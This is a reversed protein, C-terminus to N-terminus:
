IVPKRPPLNPTIKPAAKSAQQPVTPLPATPTPPPNPKKRLPIPVRKIRKPKPKASRTVTQNSAARPKPPTASPKPQPQAAADQEIAKWTNDMIKRLLALQANADVFEFVRM